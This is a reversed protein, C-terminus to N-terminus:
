ALVPFGERAAAEGQREDLTVFSLSQPTFDSAIIAAAVQTADAARLRHTRLLRISQARVDDQALVEIWTSSAAALREFAARADATGMDGDRELRALASACEIQTGWWTVVVPDERYMVDLRGSAVEEVILPLLASSDWYRM